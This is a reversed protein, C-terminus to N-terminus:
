HGECGEQDGLFVRKNAPLTLGAPDRQNNRVGDDFVGRMIASAGGRRPAPIQFVCFVTSVKLSGWVLASM